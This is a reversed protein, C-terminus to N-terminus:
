NKYYLKFSTNKALLRSGKEDVITKTIIEGGVLYRIPVLRM